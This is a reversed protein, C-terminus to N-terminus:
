IKFVSLIKKPTLEKYTKYNHELIPTMQEHIVQLQKSELQGLDDIICKISEVRQVGQQYDYGEDWFEGFSRFGLKRLNTIYNPAAM